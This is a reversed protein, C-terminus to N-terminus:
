PAHRSDSKSVAALNCIEHDCETTVVSTIRPSSEGTCMWKTHCGGGHREILPERRAGRPSRGVAHKAEYLRVLSCVHFFIDHQADM